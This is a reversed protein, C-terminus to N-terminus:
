YGKRNIESLVTDLTDDVQGGPLRPEDHGVPATAGGSIIGASTLAELLSDCKAKVGELAKKTEDLESKVANFEELSVVPPLEPPVPPVPSEEVPPVVEEEPPVPPVSGPDVNGEEQPPLAPGEGEVPPEAGEPNPEGEKQTPEETPPVVEETNGEAPTEEVAGEDSMAAVVAEIKEKEIGLENLVAILKEIDM